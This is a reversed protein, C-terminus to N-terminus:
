NYGVRWSVGGSIQLFENNNDGFLGRSNSRGNSAFLDLQLFHWPAFSLGASFYNQSFSQPDIGFQTIGHYEGFINWKHHLLFSYNVTYNLYDNRFNYGVNASLMHKEFFVQSVALRLLFPDYLPYSEILGDGLFYFIAHLGVSPLSSSGELLNLRAGLTYYSIGDTPNSINGGDQNLWGHRIGFNLEFQSGVGYRVLHETYLARFDDELTEQQNTFGHQFQLTGNGTTLASTIYGPRDSFLYPTKNEQSFLINVSLFTLLSLAQKTM